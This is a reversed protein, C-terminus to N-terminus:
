RGEILKRFESDSLPTHPNRLLRDLLEEGKKSTLREWVLRRTSIDFQSFSGKLADVVTTIAKLRNSADKAETFLNFSQM